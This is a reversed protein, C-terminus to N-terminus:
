ICGFFWINIGFLRLLFNPCKFTTQGPFFDFAKFYQCIRNKQTKVKMWERKSVRTTDTWEQNDTMIEGGYVMFGTGRYNVVWHDVLKYTYTYPLFDSIDISRGVNHVVCLLIPVRGQGRKSIAATTTTISLSKIIGNYDLSPNTM